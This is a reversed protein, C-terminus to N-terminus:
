SYGSHRVSRESGSLAVDSKAIVFFLGMNRLPSASVVKTSVRSMGYAPAATMDQLMAYTM